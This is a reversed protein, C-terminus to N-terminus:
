NTLIYQHSGAAPAPSVAQGQRSGPTQSLLWPSCGQTHSLTNTGRHTHKHRQTHTHARESMEQQRPFAWIGGEEAVKM